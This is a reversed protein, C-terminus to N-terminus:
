YLTRHSARRAKALPFSCYELNPLKRHSNGSVCLNRMLLGAVSDSVSDSWKVYELGFDGADLDLLNLPGSGRYILAILARRRSSSLEFESVPLIELPWDAESYIDPGLLQEDRLGQVTRRSKWSDLLDAVTINYIILRTSKVIRDLFEETKQREIGAEHLWCLDEVIDRFNITFNHAVPSSPTIARDLALAHGVREVVCNPLLLEGISRLGQMRWRFFEGAHASRSINVLASRSQIDGFIVAFPWNSTWIENGVVDIGTIFRSTQPHEECFINFASYVSWLSRLRDYTVLEDPAPESNPRSRSFTIPMSLRPAREAIEAFQIFGSLHDRLSTTIKTGAGRLRRGVAITKRFEAALVADSSFVHECAEAVVEARVDSLMTDRLLGMQDFRDVFRPLGEADKSRLSHGILSLATIVSIGNIGLGSAIMDKIGVSARALDGPGDNIWLGRLFEDSASPELAARRVLEWYEGSTISAAFRRGHRRPLDSDGIYQLFHRTAHAVVKLDFPTGRADSSPLARPEVPVPRSASTLLRCFGYLDIAAGSHLHADALDPLRADSSMSVHRNNIIELPFWCNTDLWQEAPLQATAAALIEVDFKHDACLTAIADEYGAPLESALGAYRVREAILIPGRVPQDLEFARRNAERPDM